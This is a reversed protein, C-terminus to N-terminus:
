LKLFLLISNNYCEYVAYSFFVFFINVPKIELFLEAYKEFKQASEQFLLNTKVEISIKLYKSFRSCTYFYM